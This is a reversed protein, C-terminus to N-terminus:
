LKCDLDAQHMIKFFRKANKLYRYGKLFGWYPIGYQRHNIKGIRYMHRWHMIIERLAQGYSMGCDYIHNPEAGVGNFELIMINKEAKLDEVSTCKVDYRGYYFTGVELSIKDFVERLREDIENKLNVFNAGRNHNGAISLYYKQGDAIINEFNDGHRMRMEEGRFKAKPHQDILEKLTSTGDGTVSMYDKAIFGTVMGKEEGPYRIHFVSFEMPLDIMDQIVYDVTVHQHYYKLQDENSIKRMLMGKMGVDPKALIPYHFGAAKVGAVLHDFSLSPDAYITRPYLHKPLQDYMERKGEGEFGSFELTPNVPSLFWFHRAKIAYYLWVFGLPAYIIFFPWLEWNTLKALFRKLDSIQAVFIRFLDFSHTPL